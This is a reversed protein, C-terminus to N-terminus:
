GGGRHTSGGSAYVGHNLRRSAKRMSQAGIQATNTTGIIPTSIVSPPSQKSAM